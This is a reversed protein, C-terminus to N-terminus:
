LRRSGSSVPLFLLLLGVILLVLGLGWLLGPGGLLLTAVILILGLGIFATALSSAGADGPGGEAPVNVTAPPTAYVPLKGIGLIYGWKPSAYVELLRAFFYYVWSAGATILAGATVTDIPAGLQDVLWTALLGVLLPVSTRVVSPTIGSSPSQVETVIPTPPM